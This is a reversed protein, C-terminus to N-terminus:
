LKTVRLSRPQPEVMPGIVALLESHARHIDAQRGEGHMRDPFQGAALVQGMQDLHEGSEIAAAFQRLSIPALLPLRRRTIM